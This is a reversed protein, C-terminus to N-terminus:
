SQYYILKFTNTRSTKGLLKVNLLGNLYKLQRSYSPLQHWSLPFFELSVDTFSHWEMSCKLRKLHKPYKCRLELAEVKKPDHTKGEKSVIFGLITGFCVMFPCKELNLNIGYEKCKIVCKKFKELHTSMDNFITFDDLFIKM